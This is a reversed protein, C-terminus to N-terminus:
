YEANLSGQIDTSDDPIFLQSGWALCCAIRVSPLPSPIDQGRRVVRTSYFIM